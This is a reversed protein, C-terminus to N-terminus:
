PKIWHWVSLLRSGHFMFICWSFAEWLGPACPSLFLITKFANKTCVLDDGSIHTWLLDLSFATTCLGPMYTATCCKGCFYVDFYILFLVHLQCVVSRYKLCVYWSSSPLSYSYFLFSINHVSLCVCRMWCSRCFWSHAAMLFFFAAM